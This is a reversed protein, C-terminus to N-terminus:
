RRGDVRFQEFGAEGDALAPPSSRDRERLKMVLETARHELEIKEDLLELARTYETRIKAPMGEQGEMDLM